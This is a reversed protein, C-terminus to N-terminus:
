VAAWIGSEVDIQQFALLLYAEDGRGDGQNFVGRIDEGGGTTGRGHNFDSGFARAHQGPYIPQQVM